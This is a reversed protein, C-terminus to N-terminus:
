QFHGNITLKGMECRSKGDNGENVLPYIIAFLRRLFPRDFADFGWPSCVCSHRQKKTQPEVSHQRFPPQTKTLNSLPDVHRVQLHDDIYLIYIHVHIYIYKCYIYYIYIYMHIYIYISYIYIYLGMDLLRERPAKLFFTNCSIEGGFKQKTPPTVRWSGPVGLQTGPHWPATFSWGGVLQCPTIFLWLKIVYRKLIIIIYLLSWLIKIAYTIIVPTPITNIIMMIIKSIIAIVLLLFLLLVIHWYHQLGLLFGNGLESYISPIFGEFSSTQPMTNVVNGFMNTM